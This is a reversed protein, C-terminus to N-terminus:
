GPLRPPPLPRARHGHFVATQRPKGAEVPDSDRGGARGSRDSDAAATHSARRASAVSLAREVLREQHRRDAQRTRTRHRSRRAFVPVPPAFHTRDSHLRSAVDLVHAGLWYLRNTGDAGSKMFWDEVEVVSGSLAPEVSRSIRRVSKSRPRWSADTMSNSSSSSLIGSRM